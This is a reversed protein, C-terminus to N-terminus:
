DRFPFKNTLAARPCPKLSGVRPSPISFCMIADTGRTLRDPSMSAPTIGYPAFIKKIKLRINASLVTIYMEKKVRRRTVQQIKLFSM